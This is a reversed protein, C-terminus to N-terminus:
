FIALLDDRSIGLADALFGLLLFFVFRIKVSVIYFTTKAEVILFYSSTFILNYISAQKTPIPLSAANQAM